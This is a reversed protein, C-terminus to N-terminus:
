YEKSQIAASLQININIDQTTAKTHVPSVRKHIVVNHNTLKELRSM